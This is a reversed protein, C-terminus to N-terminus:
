LGFRYQLSTMFQTRTGLFGYEARLMFHKNYQYQTGVVFNWMDAPAKNLSYQVTSTSATSLAGDVATLFTAATDLAKNATAYKAINEPKAKEINSLSSWWDNVQTQKEDIKVFGQDVKGQAQDIPIVDALPLSGSTEGSYHVRFGGVWVAINSQPKNFKFTKGIRPGFVFVFAPNDLADVDSWTMNMDLAFWGGAVGITPTIGLGMTTVDFDAKSNFALIESWNNEADPVWLGANIATSTQAKGFIGYVNLFPFLWVDPRINIANATAVASNFRIIQDLNYQPGNNFGVYLDNITLDSQQWFYNVSVGASYPLEFGKNTAKEGWIPLSYPYKEVKLSDIIAENKKGVIKDSYVQSFSKTSFIICCIIIIKNIKM